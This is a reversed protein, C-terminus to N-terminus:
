EIKELLQPSVRWYGENEKIAISFNKSNLRLNSRMFPHIYVFDILRSHHISALRSAPIDVVLFCDALQRFHGDFRPLANPLPLFYTRRLLIM